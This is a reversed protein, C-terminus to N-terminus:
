VWSKLLGDSQAFNFSGLWGSSWTLYSLSLLLVTQLIEMGEKERWAAAM